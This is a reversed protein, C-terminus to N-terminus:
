EKRSGKAPSPLFDHYNIGYKKIKYYIIRYTLGIDRASQHINGQTNRLADVILDKELREVTETFGAGHERVTNAQGCKEMDTPLHYARIAEEDCVLVAREMTNRLERINGPWKYDTLLDMAPTSIRSVPRKYEEAYKKLYYNALPIIDDTRDRLPPIFIPFINIRYYLDKRFTGAEVCKELHRNTACIIRVDVAISKETGLPQVVGDQLVRLLKAQASLSLDGIEDLFLTGKDAQQFVGNHNQVAGTFAGKLWGFLEGEILESPLAACNIKILPKDKRPSAEHLAQAMLEKGVGSEGRLLVIAHSSGVQHVQHLVHLMSKSHAIISGSTIRTEAQETTHRFHQRALDEQLWAVQTGVLAAVTELFLCRNSLESESARPTDASLVGIAGDEESAGSHVPVCIFALRQMEEPSRGFLKNEFDPHQSMCPVIIAKNSQFVQGTIGTGPEYSAEPAEANGYAMSLRLNGSEPDQVIIHPRQFHMTEALASLLERLVQRFSKNPTLSVVIRHLTQLCAEIDLPHSEESM